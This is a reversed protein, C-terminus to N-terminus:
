HQIRHQELHNLFQAKSKYAYIRANKLENGQKDFFLIAPPGPLNYRQLLANDQPNNTLDIQLWVHQSLRNQVDSQSFTEHEMEFCATCWDAFYDIMVPQGNARASALAQDLSQESRIRQFPLPQQVSATSSLAAPSSIFQALILASGCALITLGIGRFLKGRPSTLPDLAGCYLGALILLGGGSVWALTEPLLHKVLWLAVALLMVGFLGKVNDMWGGAKPLINAGTVGIAILPAGMGLGLALLALGGLVWDGSQGIYLLAGALPASVCPSVVLASLVGIIAVGIYTGGQQRQSISNLRNQIGSPLQLEYFGFMSFSLVVFVAAFSFLVTPNQMAVQLKAGTLGAVVGLIAYTVAMGLVYTISLVAAKRRSLDTGQGVIIGSLIPVMPLVCPTFTLGIGILFFMGIISFLGNQSLFTELSLADDADLDTSSQTIQGPNPRKESGLPAEAPFVSPSEADLDTSKTSEPRPKGPEPNIDPAAADVDIQYMNTYTQPIYCLGKDACGQYHADIEIFGDDAALVPVYVDVSSYFVEVQGFIPDDKWEAAQQYVPEGLEGPTGATPEFGFRHKYLYYGDAITFTFHVHNGADVASVQFAENVPLFEGDDNAFAFTTLWSLLLALFLNRHPM